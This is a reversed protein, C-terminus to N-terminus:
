PNGKFDRRALPTFFMTRRVHPILFVRLLALRRRLLRSRYRITFAMPSQQLSLLNKVDKNATSTSASTHRWFLNSIESSHTTASFRSLAYDGKGLGDWVMLLDSSKRRCIILKQARPPSRNGRRQRGKLSQLNLGAASMEFDGVLRVL